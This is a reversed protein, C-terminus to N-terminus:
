VHIDVGTNIENEKPTGPVDNINYNNKNRTETSLVTTSGISESINKTDDNSSVSITDNTLNLLNVSIQESTVSLAADNLRNISQKPKTRDSVDEDFNPKHSNESPRTNNKQSSQSHNSCVVTTHKKKSNQTENMNKEISEEDSSSYIKLIPLCQHVKVSTEYGHCTQKWGETLPQYPNLYGDNSLKKSSESSDTDGSSAHLVDYKNTKEKWQEDVSHYPHLYSTTDDEQDSGGLDHYQDSEHFSLYSRTLSKVSVSSSGREEESHIPYLYSTNDTIIQIGNANTTNGVQVKNINVNELLMTEDIEDYIGLDSNDLSNMAHINQVTNPAPLKHKNNKKYKQVLYSLGLIVILCAVVM